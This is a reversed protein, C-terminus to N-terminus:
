AGSGLWRRGERRGGEEKTRRGVAGEGLIWFALICLLHVSVFVTCLLLLIVGKELFEGFGLQIGAPALPLVEKLEVFKLYIYIEQQLNSAPFLPV